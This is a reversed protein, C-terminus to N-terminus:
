FGGSYIAVGVTRLRQKVGFNRMGEYEPVTWVNKEEVKM